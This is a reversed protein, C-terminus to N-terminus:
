IGAMRRKQYFLLGAIVLLGVMAILGWESLTPISIVVRIGVLQNIIVECDQWQYFIRNITISDDAPNATALESSLFLLAEEPVDM